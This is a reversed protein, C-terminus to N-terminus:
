ELPNGIQKLESWGPELNRTEPPDGKGINSQNVRVVNVTKLPEGPLENFSRTMTDFNKGQTESTSTGQINHSELELNREESGIPLYRHDQCKKERMNEDPPEPLPPPMLLETNLM